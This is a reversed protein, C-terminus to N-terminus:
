NHEKLRKQLDETYGSYIEGNKTSEIIYNYFM